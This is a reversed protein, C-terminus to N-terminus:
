TKDGETGIFLSMLYFCIPSNDQTNVMRPCDGYLAFSTAAMINRTISKGKSRSNKFANEESGETVLVVLIQFFFFFLFLFLSFPLFTKGCRGDRKRGTRGMRQVMRTPSNQADFCVILDVEGIDLGEEGICTAVM